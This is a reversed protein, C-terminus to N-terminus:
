TTEVSTQDLLFFFLLVHRSIHVNPHQAAIENAKDDDHEAVPREALVRDALREVNCNLNFFVRNWLTEQVEKNCM